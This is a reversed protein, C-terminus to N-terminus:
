PKNVHSVVVITTRVGGLGPSPTLTAEPSRGYDERYRPDSCLGALEPNAGIEFRPYDGQVASKLCDLSKQQDGPV